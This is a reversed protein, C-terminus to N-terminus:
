KKKFNEQAGGKTGTPDHVKRGGSEIGEYEKRNIEPLGFVAAGVAWGPEYPKTDKEENSKTPTLKELDKVRPASQFDTGERRLLKKPGRAGKSCEGLAEQSGERKVSGGLGTVVVIFVEGKYAEV